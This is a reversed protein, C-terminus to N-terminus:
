PAADEDLTVRSNGDLELMLGPQGAIRLSTTISSSGKLVVRTSVPLQNGQLLASTSREFRLTTSEGEIRNGVFAMDDADQVKIAEDYGHIYNGVVVNRKVRGDAGPEPEDQGRYALFAHKGGGGIENNSVVSDAAGVSFRVGANANNLVRNDQIVSGSSGHVVIGSDGNDFAENGEVLADNSSRHLMIGHKGNAWARNGRIVLSDCRKSAIIGHNGNHHVDNDEILLGDSDDHPDFGYQVNHDVENGYWVSGEAGYTYVGFYNHHIRSGRIDGRVQVRDYLGPEDGRVKWTLGYSEAAAYGLYGVDSDVIDMRSELATVGDDALKSRVRIFARGQEVHETDPGRAADDWSTIRTARVDISGHDATISVFRGGEPSNNSLLRLEDVDGGLATGHLLLTSGDTILLDARLLWVGPAGEARELPANPLAAGIQRLTVTVGDEVSIRNNSSSWRLTAGAAPAVLMVAVLGCSGLLAGARGM